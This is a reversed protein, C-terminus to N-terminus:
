FGQVSLMSCGDSPESLYVNAPSHSFSVLVWFVVSVAKIEQKKKEEPMEQPPRLPQWFGLVAYWICVFLAGLLNEKQDASVSLSGRQTLFLAPFDRKPKTTSQKKKEKGKQWLESIGATTSALCIGLSCPLHLVRKSWLFYSGLSIADPYGQQEQGEKEDGWIAWSLCDRVPLRSCLPSVLAERPKRNGALLVM